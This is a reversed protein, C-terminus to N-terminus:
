KKKEIFFWGIPILFLLVYSLLTITSGTKIVQPEFKFEITHKGKPLQIARLVYNVRFHPTPKGDVYANWGNKYYIESFVAVQPKTSNSQYVLKNPSYSQLSIAALSDKSIKFDIPTKADKLFVATTKTDITKLAGIEKDARDVVLIKEIFWANGNAKTNKVVVLRGLSDRQMSYKVNLMDLVQQNNKEIHYDYLEQYRKMKVASYGGISKHFYSTGGDNMVNALTNHVRYHSTDKLIQTDLANKQFPKEVKRAAVFHADNVYRRDVGVLDFVILAALIVTLLLKSLKEKLFLWISASAVLLLLLSRLSDGFLLSKRDATIADLYGHLNAESLQTDLQLDTPTEFTFLGTGAVTFLLALGVISFFAYKFAKFKVESSIQNSFLEKLGLVALLPIALEALVQISSVARFKNYLPVYDIFFNTLISFNKGWSLLLAFIVTALLWKKLKGQVLFAALVFLFLLIAGIYAPAAVIPQDGWYMSSIQYIYNANDEPLGKQVAEQLFQMLESEEGVDEHSTGGMFRPIMWNFTELKGYSFQTIYAKSLGSSKELPKGNSAITLESKSRTSQNAYEATAMLRTANVGLALVVAIVLIALQKGFTKLQKTKFADLLFVIGLIAVMFFLYYTMQLHNAYLELAMAVATLLFGILYKNQFVLLIGALVMPMYAIAHAKGNHGVGLIIIFYTSFGFALAGLVGLKWEVKLVTLLIFFGIFYLFLYDAPRPLFRLLSDLKGIYNHPYYASIQYAPMGGFAADTWYPEQDKHAKRYDVIEKSMGIHQQIDSQQIKKGELVPSFYAVSVVTFILLAILYHLIKKINM